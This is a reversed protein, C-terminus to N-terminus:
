CGEGGEQQQQELTHRGDRLTAPGGEELEVQVAVLHILTTRTRERAAAPGGQLM